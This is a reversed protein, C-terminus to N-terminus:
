LFINLLYFFLFYLLVLFGNQAWSLDLIQSQHESFECIPQPYFVDYFSCVINQNNSNTPSSSSSLGQQPHIVSVVSPFLSSSISPLSSFDTMCYEDDESLSTYINHLTSISLASDVKFMKEDEESIQIFETNEPTSNSAVKNKEDSIRKSLLDFNRVEFVRVTNDKGAFAM